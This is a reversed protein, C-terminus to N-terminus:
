EAKRDSEELTMEIDRIEYIRDCHQSHQSCFGQPSIVASLLPLWFPSLAEGEGGLLGTVKHDKGM